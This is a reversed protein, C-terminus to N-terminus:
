VGPAPYNLPACNSCTTLTLDNPCLVEPPDGQSPAVRVIFECAALGCENSAHCVVVQDGVPLCTGRPPRCGILTGNLVTPDPYSLVACNSCTTLTLDPPCQISPPQGDELVSITFRCLDKNGCRDEATCTVVHIGCTFFTGSAPTCSVAVSGSDDSATPAPYTVNAGCLGTSTPCAHVVINSPCELV